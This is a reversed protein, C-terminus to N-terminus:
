KTRAPVNWPTWAMVLDMVGFSGMVDDAVEVVALLFVQVYGSGATAGEPISLMSDEKKRRVTKWVKVPVLNKNNVSGLMGLVSTRM